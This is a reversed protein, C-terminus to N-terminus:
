LGVVSEALANDYFDGSSGVWHEIGVHQLRETYRVSVYQTGRDSHHILGADTSRAALAQELADLVLGTKMSDSTRWGVIRDAFTDIAFATYAFGRWPAVYTLDAVWLRNPAEARFHRRVRDAPLGQMPAPCTTRITAGRVAGKLGLQRM